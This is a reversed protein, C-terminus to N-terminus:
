KVAVMKVEGEMQYWQNEEPFYRFDVKEDSDKLAVTMRNKSTIVKYMQGKHMMEMEEVQGDKMAIPNNGGWFEISNFILADGLVCIEYAPLICMALFVLENVFKKQSVQNNWNNLKSTLRFPGVCSSMAAVVLVVALSKILTSKM